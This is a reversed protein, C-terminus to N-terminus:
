ARLRPGSDRAAARCEIHTHRVVKTVRNKDVFRREKAEITGGCVACAVPKPKKFFM